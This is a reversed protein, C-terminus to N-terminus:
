RFPKAAAISPQIQAPSTTSTANTDTATPQSRPDAQSVAFYSIQGNNLTSGVLLHAGQGDEGTALSGLNAIIPLSQQNTGLRTSGVGSGALVLASMKGTNLPMRM